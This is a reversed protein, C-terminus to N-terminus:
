GDQGGDTSQEKALAALTANFAADMDTGDMLYQTAGTRPHEQGECSQLAVEVVMLAGRLREVEKALRDREAATEPAAAILKANAQAQEDDDGWVLAIVEAGFQQTVTTQFKGVPRLEEWQRKHFGVARTQWRGPTHEATM